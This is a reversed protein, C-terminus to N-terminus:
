MVGVWRSSVRIDIYLLNLEMLETLPLKLLNNGNRKWEWKWEYMPEIVGGSHGLRPGSFKQTSRPPGVVWSSTDPLAFCLFMTLGGGAGGRGCYRAEGGGGGGRGQARSRGRM